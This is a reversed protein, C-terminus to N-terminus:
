HSEMCLPSCYLWEGGTASIDITVERGNLPTGCKACNDSPGSEIEPKEGTCNSGYHRCVACYGVGVHPHAECACGDSSGCVKCCDVGQTECDFHNQASRMTSETDFGQQDAYHLLDCICDAVTYDQEREIKPLKAARCFAKFAAKGLLAREKNTM